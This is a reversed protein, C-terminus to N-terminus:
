LWAHVAIRKGVIEWADAGIADADLDLGSPFRATARRTAPLAAIPPHASWVEEAGAIVLFADRQAARTAIERTRNWSPLPLEPIFSSGPWPTLFVVAVSHAVHRAGFRRVLSALRLYWGGAVGAPADPHLLALPWGDRAFRYASPSAADDIEPQACLLVVPATAIAGLTPIAGHSLDLRAAPRARANHLAVWAADDDQLTRLLADEDHPAM